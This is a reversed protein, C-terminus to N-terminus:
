FLTSRRCRLLPILSLPLVLRLGTFSGPGRVCAIRRIVDPHLKLRRLCSQLAPILLEAGQSPAHRAECCLPVPPKEPEERAIIFQLLGEAANLVLLHPQPDPLPM